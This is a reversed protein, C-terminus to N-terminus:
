EDRLVSMPDVRSARRAPIYAAGLMVVALLAAAAALALPDGAEIGLLLSQAALGLAWAAIAGLVIGIVAMRAVQRLVMARIRGTPAGLAVRLGIERSRQAVSFALVGYLGLAALATALVAFATSMGAVVRELAINAHFQQEMTQLNFIPLAPDVRAVTERITNMLAAPPLDSRVYFTDRGPSNLFVQPTIEGMVKGSSRLDGIVGIIENTIAAGTPSRGLILRRGVIVEPALGFREAFRQNVIVRRDFSDTDNFDRGAVLETGFTRFFNPSVVDISTRLSETEVGELALSSIQGQLGLLPNMSSGVSSVGPIAALTEELRSMLTADRNVNRGDRRGTEFMVVSDIDAGLDLRSINALSQAFVGMTALLAMSLAVQATALAARFRAVSRTTTHRSGHAQLANGPKIRVMARVPLLGVALASAMAIVIAVLAATASLSADPAAVPIGPAQSTGRLALWAVPLSLIAAPVALVLSEALQLSVIRMRTAGLSARVAIEGSRTTARLLILGAVNACCLLLVVGSVALLLELSNRAPDLIASNTQGRAGPELVLPRTRFTERQHEDVNTLSPAEVESLIARYVTNIAAAAGESTVGPKLRAFLRVWYHDRRDHNPTNMAAPIGASAGSSLTIPVFVSARTHVATGHFGRPAVGVITLPMDNVTLARGVVDPDSGFESQWYAYSLVVSEAQGDIRDDEPGLLRGLAPKLGLVPFYSGSVYGLTASQTTGGTSVKAEDFNHAALGVFPEQARELDRFMPYSFLTELGGGDRSGGQTPFLAPNMRVEVKVPAPDTLNVLRDPEPVPLPRLLIQQFLSFIAVNVGIGLALTAVAVFTFTKQRSLTRFAYGLDALTNDIAAVSLTARVSEKTQEVGGLEIRAARRAEAESMGARMKEAASRELYDELDTDLARELEDRRFLWRVLSRLQYLIKM